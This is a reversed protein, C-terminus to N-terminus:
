LGISTGAGSRGFATRPNRRREEEAPTSVPAPGISVDPAGPPKPALAKIKEEAAQRAALGERQIQAAQAAFRAQQATAEAAKRTEAAQEEAARKISGDDGGGFISDFIKSM